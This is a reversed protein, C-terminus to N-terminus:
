KWNDWLGRSAIEGVHDDPDAFYVSHGGQEWGMLGLIPINNDILHQHWKRVDEIAEVALCYHQRLSNSTAGDPKKSEDMLTPLFHESPGHKPIKYDPRFENIVIDETSKGLAFILLNCRGLEFGVGRDSNLRPILKLKLITEYFHRAKDIDKTYLITELIHTFNPLDTAM